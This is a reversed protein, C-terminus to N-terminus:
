FAKPTLSKVRPKTRDLPRFACVTARILECPSFGRTLSLAQRPGLPGSKWAGHIFGNLKGAESKSSGQEATGMTSFCHFNQPILPNVPNKAARYTQLTELVAPDCMHTDPQVSHAGSLRVATRDKVILNFTGTTLSRIRAYTRLSRVLHAVSDECSSERPRWCMRELSPAPM